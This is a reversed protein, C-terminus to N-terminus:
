PNVVSKYIAYNTDKITTSGPAGPLINSELFSLVSSDNFVNRYTEFELPANQYGMREFINLKKNDDIAMGYLHRMFNEKKIGEVGAVYPLGRYTLPEIDLSDRGIMQNMIMLKKDNDYDIIKYGGYLILAPIAFFGVTMCISAALAAGAVDLGGLGMILGHATLVSGIGVVGLSAGYAVSRNFAMKAMTSYVFSENINFKNKQSVILDPKIRTTFGGQATISHIVRGVEISGQMDNVPDIIHIVDYPKIYSNGTITLEGNYMNRAEEALLSVGVRWRSPMLEWSNRTYPLGDEKRIQINKDNTVNSVTKNDLNKAVPSGDDNFTMYQDGRVTTYCASGDLVKESWKTDDWDHPNINNVFVEKVRIQDDLINDDLDFTNTIFDERNKIVVDEKSVYDKVDPPCILNIRNAWGDSTAIINNNIINTYATAIHHQQLKRYQHNNGNLNYYIGNLGVDQNIEKTLDTVFDGQLTIGAILDLVQQHNFIQTATTIQSQIYVANSYKDIYARALAEITVNTTLQGGFHGVATKLSIIETPIFTIGFFASILKTANDDSTLLNNLIDVYIQAQKMLTLTSGFISLGGNNTANYIIKGLLFLNSAVQSLISSSITETKSITSYMDTYKYYGRKPGIYLTNRITPVFPFMNDNYPLVAMVFDPSFIVLEHLVDWISQDRIYWNFSLNGSLNLQDKIWGLVIDNGGTIALSNIKSVNYPLYINDDKPDNMSLGPLGSIFSAIKLSGAEGTINGGSLRLSDKVGFNVYGMQGFHTLGTAQQLAWTAVDGLSKILGFTGFHVGENPAIKENLEAGYGQCIIEVVPGPNVEIVIGYFVVPLEVQSNSYGMKVLISVGPKLMMSVLPNSQAGLSPINEAFTDTLKGAVNSLTITCINSASLRDQVVTIEQIASYDYFDNFLGWEQMNEQIFYVQYTPFIKIANGSNDQISSKYLVDQVCQLDDVRKTLMRPDAQLANYKAMMEASVGNQVAKRCKALIETQKILDLMRPDKFYSFMTKGYKDKFTKDISENYKYPNDLSGAMLIAEYWTINNEGTGYEKDIYFKNYENLGDVMPNGSLVSNTKISSINDNISKAQNEITQRVLEAKLAGNILQLRAFAVELFANTKAAIKQEEWYKDEFFITAATDGNIMMNVMQQLNTDSPEKMAAANVEIIKRKVSIAWQLDTLNILTSPNFINENSTFKGDKDPKYKEELESGLQLASITARTVLMSIQNTINIRVEKILDSTIFDNTYLYFAPDLISTPMKSQESVYGIAKQFDRYCGKMASGMLDRLDQIKDQLYIPNGKSDKGIQFGSSFISLSTSDVVFEKAIDIVKQNVAYNFASPVISYLADVMSNTVGMIKTDGLAIKGGGYSGATAGAVTIAAIGLIVAWGVPNSVLLGAIGFGILGGLVAGTQHGQSQSGFLRSLPNIDTVTKKIYGSISTFWSNVLYQIGQFYSEMSSVLKDPEKVSGHKWLLQSQSELLVLNNMQNIMTNTANVFSLPVDPQQGLATMINKQASSGALVTDALPFEHQLVLSWDKDPDLLSNQMIMMKYFNYKDMYDYQSNNNSDNLGLGRWLPNLLPNEVVSQIQQFDLFRGYSPHDKRIVLAKLISTISNLITINADANNKKNTLETLSEMSYIDLESQELGLNIQYTNPQNEISAVEITNLIISKIGLAGFIPDAETIHLVTDLNMYKAPSTLQIQKSLVGMRNMIYVFQRLAEDGKCVINMNISWDSRGLHQYTPQRWGIIQQPVVKNSISFSIGTIITNVGDVLQVGLYKAPVYGDQDIDNNTPNLTLEILARLAGNIITAQKTLSQIDKVGSFLQQVMMIEITGLIGGPYGIQGAAPPNKLATNVKDNGILLGDSDATLTGTLACMKQFVNLLATQMAPDTINQQKCVTTVMNSANVTLQRLKQAMQIPYYVIGQYAKSMNSHQLAVILQSVTAASTGAAVEQIMKPLILPPLGNGAAIAQAVDKPLAAVLQQTQVLGKNYSDIIKEHIDRLTERSFDQANYIVGLTGLNPDTVNYDSFSEVLDGYFDQYLISKNPDDTVNIKGPMFNKATTLMSKDSPLIYQNGIITNKRRYKEAVDNYDVLFKMNGGFVRDEFYELTIYMEFSEPFGPMSRINLDTMIMWMSEDVAGNKFKNEVIKGMHDTTLSKLVRAIFRSEVVVVPTVMFNAILSKMQDNISAMNPFIINVTINNPCTDSVIKPDGVTRLASFRVYQMSQSYTVQAVPCISFDIDGIRLVDMLGDDQIDDPLEVRTDPQVLVKEDVIPGNKKQDDLEAKDAAVLMNCEDNDRDGPEVKNQSNAVFGIPSPTINKAATTINAYGCADNVAQIIKTRNAGYLIKDEIHIHRGNKDVEHALAYIWETNNPDTKHGYENYIANVILTAQDDTIGRLSIDLACGYPKDPLKTHASYPIFSPDNLPDSSADIEKKYLWEQESVTGDSFDAVKGRWFFKNHITSLDEGLEKSLDPYSKFGPQYDRAIQTITIIQSALFVIPSNPSPNILFDIVKCLDCGDHYMQQYTSSMSSSGNKFAYTGM